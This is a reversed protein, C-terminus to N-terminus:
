LHRENESFADSARIHRASVCSLEEKGVGAEETTFRLESRLYSAM